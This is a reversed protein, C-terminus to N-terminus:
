LIYEYEYSVVYTSRVHMHFVIYLELAVTLGVYGDYKMLPFVFKALMYPLQRLGM